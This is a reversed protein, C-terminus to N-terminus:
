EIKINYSIYFLIKSIFRDNASNLPFTIKGFTNVFDDYIAKARMFEMSTTWQELEDNNRAAFYFERIGQFKNLFFYLNVEKLM